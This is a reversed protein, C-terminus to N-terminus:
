RKYCCNVEPKKAAHKDEQRASQTVGTEFLPSRRPSRRATEVLDAKAAAHSLSICDRTDWSARGAARSGEVQMEQWDLWASAALTTTFMELAPSLSMKRVYYTSEWTPWLSSGPFPLTKSFVFLIHVESFWSFIKEMFVFICKEGGLLGSESENKQQQECGASACHESKRLSLATRMTARCNGDPYLGEQPKLGSSTM